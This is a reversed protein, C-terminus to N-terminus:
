RFRQVVPTCTRGNSVTAISTWNGVMDGIQMLVSVRCGSVGPPVRVYVSDASSCCANRGRCLIEAQQGGICAELPVNTMNAQMAPQTEDFTVPRLGTGWLVVVEGPNAAHTPTILQSDSNLFAIADGFGSQSVTYIGINNQVVTIPATAMQSNYTLTLTGTGIPTSSPLIAAVQSALTYFVIANVTAGGVTVTISTGGISNPLPFSTAQVYSAPGLYAGKVVFMSGQAIGSNALWPPLNSRANEVATISPGPGSVPSYTTFQLGLSGGSNSTVLVKAYNGSSTHVAIIANVAPASIAGSSYLRGFTSLTAQDLFDWEAAPGSSTIRCATASGQLMLTSGNWLLDGGSAGTTGTDLNLTTSTTLTATGTLDALSLM